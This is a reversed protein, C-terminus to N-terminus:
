TPLQDTHYLEAAVIHVILPGPKKKSKTRTTPTLPLFPRAYLGGTLRLVRYVTPYKDFEAVKDTATKVLTTLSAPPFSEVLDGRADLLRLYYSGPSPM